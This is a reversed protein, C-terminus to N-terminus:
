LADKQSLANALKRNVMARMALLFAASRPYQKMTMDYGLMEKLFSLVKDRGIVSELARLARLDQLGERLVEYRISDEPGNKGPYVLFSDGSAFGKGASTDKYPDLDIDRSFQSYYFNFGWHLFGECDYHYLLTGMIRNRASPYNMFRNPVTNQQAVCYYTWLPKVRADAFAEIHDCAVVPREVLGKSYFDFSSLADMMPWEGKLFTQLLASLKGYHELHEEAPEDSIHFFCRRELNERRLFPLLEAMLAALFDRYEESLADVDWGFIRKEEGDVVAVIKPTKAAGWQTFFHSMEFFEIGCKRALDLWRKLKSFDFTYQENVRTIGILQVTPREGGVQTDLPPTWLPTLLMNIGHRAASDFYQELLRWHAESWCEVQYYHYLCDAHFWQTHLLKQPPLAANIIELTFTEEALVQKNEEFNEWLTAGLFSLKLSYKGAPCDYPVECSIWYSVWQRPLLRVHDNIDRLLDPYMGVRSDLAWDPNGSDYAPFDVPVCKVERIRINGPFEHAINLDGLFLDEDQFIAFQFSFIEGRLASGSNYMEASVPGDPFIKELSSTLISRFTM